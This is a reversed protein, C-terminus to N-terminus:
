VARDTGYSDSHTNRYSDPNSNTYTNCEFYVHGNRQNTWEDHNLRSQQEGHVLRDRKWDVRRFRLRDGTNRQYFCGCWYGEM